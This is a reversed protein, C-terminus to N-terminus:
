RVQWARRVQEDCSGPQWITRVTKIDTTFSKLVKEDSIYDRWDRGQKKDM